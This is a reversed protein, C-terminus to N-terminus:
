PISPTLIRPPLAPSKMGARGGAGGGLGYLKFLRSRRGRYDQRCLRRAQANSPTPHASGVLEKFDHVIETHIFNNNLPFNKCDRGFSLLLLKMNGDSPRVPHIDIRFFPGTWNLEITEIFIQMFGM